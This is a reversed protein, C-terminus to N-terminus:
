VQRKAIAEAIKPPLGVGTPLVKTNISTLASKCVEKRGEDKKLPRALAQVASITAVVQSAPALDRELVRNVNALHASGSTFQDFLQRFVNVDGNM